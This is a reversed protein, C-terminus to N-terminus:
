NQQPLLEVEKVVEKGGGVATLTTFNSGSITSTVERAEMEM